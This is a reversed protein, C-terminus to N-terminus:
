GVKRASPKDRVPRAQRRREGAPDQAGAARFLTRLGSVASAFRARLPGAADLWADIQNAANILATLADGMASGDVQRAARQRGLRARAAALEARLADTTQRLAAAVKAADKELRARTQDETESPLRAGAIVRARVRPATKDNPIHSM